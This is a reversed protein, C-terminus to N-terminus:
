SKRLSHQSFSAKSEWWCKKYRITSINWKRWSYSEAL